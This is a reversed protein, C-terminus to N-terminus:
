ISGAKCRVASWDGPPVCREIIVVINGIALPIEVIYYM